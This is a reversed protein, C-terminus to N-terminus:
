TFLARNQWLVFAGVFLLFIAFGRRLQPAPVRSALRAGLLTGVVVLATFALLFGWPYPSQGAHGAWGAFANLAIALLSTGVAEHMPLGAALVLAPVILFGGGVGILGTLAGVGLGALMLTLPRPTAPAANPAPTATAAAPATPRASAPPRLMAVAAVLVVVALLLMQHEGRVAHSLRAAAFSALMAVGSFPIASRLHVRGARWHGLMGMAAGTGVVPLSMAISLKPDFGLVYAFVPVTLISGGGGLLGLALGIVLALLAALLTM